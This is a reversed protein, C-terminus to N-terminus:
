RIAHGPNSKLQERRVFADLGSLVNEITALCHDVFTDSLYFIWPQGGTTAKVFWDAPWGATTIREDFAARRSVPWEIGEHFMKNRYAFLASLTNRLDAPLDGVLGVADALEMIGDVLNRKKGSKSSYRCDWQKKSPMAWRPHESRSCGIGDFLKPIGQFARKFLTEIFPALMGVAAMSHAADQYVSHDIHDVWDDQAHWSASGSAQKAFADIKEIENTLDADAQRNRYLLNYIDHLQADYDAWYDYDASADGEPFHLVLSALSRDDFESRDFDSHDMERPRESEMHRM